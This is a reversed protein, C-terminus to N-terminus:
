EPMTGGGRHASGDKGGGENHTVVVRVLVVWMWVCGVWWVWWVVGCEWGCVKLMHRQGDVALADLHLNPVRRALLSEAVDGRGVVALRM